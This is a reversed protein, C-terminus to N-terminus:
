PTVTLDIRMSEHGPVTCVLVYSGADLAVDTRQSSYGPAELEQATGEVTLTHRIGDRNDLWFGVTGAAVEVADTSFVNAEAIVEVDGPLPQSSDVALSAVTALGLGLVMVAVAGVALPRTATANARRFAAIGSIAVVLAALTVWLTTSFAVGSSPHRLEDVMMPANGLLAIIALMGTTLALRRRAPRLAAALVGFLVGIVAVPPVVAGIILQLVVAWVLMAIGGARCLRVWAAASAGNTAAATTTQDITGTM